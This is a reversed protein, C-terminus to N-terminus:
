VPYLTEKIADRVCVTDDKQERIMLDTVGTLIPDSWFLNTTNERGPKSNFEWGTHIHTRESNEQGQGFM